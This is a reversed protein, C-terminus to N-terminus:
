SGGSGRMSSSAAARDDEPACADLCDDAASFAASLAAADGAPGSTRPELAERLFRLSRPWAARAAALNAGEQGAQQRLFAHGAGEYIETEYRKGLREMEAKAAPITANVRADAGGYLGLVPAKISALAAAAPSTGYYVVAAGLRPQQTAWAFSVGGGWCFGVVGFSKAASPLSTGFAAAGELRKMIEAPDLRAIAGRAGEPGLAASGGIGDPAKGSLFDPVIAIFGEAAYQDAVARAWDSLGFIEHVVIVVPAKDKREPYAIWAEVEDRGGADFRVWEGHRPSALLRSAAEAEAPPLAQASAIGSLCVAFLLALGDRRGRGRLIARM